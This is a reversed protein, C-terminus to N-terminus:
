GDMYIWVGIVREGPQYLKDQIVRLDLIKGKKVNLVIQLRIRYNSVYIILLTKVTCERAM